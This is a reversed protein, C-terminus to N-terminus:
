SRTVKKLEGYHSCNVQANEAKARHEMTVVDGKYKVIFTYDLTGTGKLKTNSGRFTGDDLQGEFYAGLYGPTYSIGRVSKGAVIVTALDATGMCERLFVEGFFIEEKLNQTMTLKAEAGTSTKYTGVLSDGQRTLNITTGSPYQANVDNGKVLMPITASSAPTITNIAGVITGDSKVARVDFYLTTTTGLKGSWEGVLWHDAATADSRAFVILGLAFAAASLRWVTYTM